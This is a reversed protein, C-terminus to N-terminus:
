KCGTRKHKSGCSLLVKRLTRGSCKQQQTTISPVDGRCNELLYFTCTVKRGESVGIETSAM